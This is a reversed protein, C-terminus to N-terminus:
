LGEDGYVTPENLPRIETAQQTQDQHEKAWDAAHLPSHFPGYVEPRKGRLHVIVAFM